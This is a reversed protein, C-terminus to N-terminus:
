FTVIACAQITTPKYAHDANSFATTLICVYDGCPTSQFPKQSNLLTPSPSMPRPQHAKTGENSKGKIFILKLLRIYVHYITTELCGYVSNVNNM